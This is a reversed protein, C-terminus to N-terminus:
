DLKVLFYKTQVLNNTFEVKMLGENYISLRGTQIEKNAMLIERMNDFNFRMLDLCVTKDMKLEFSIKNSHNGSEGITFLINSNGTFSDTVEEISFEKCETFANKVKTFRGIFDETFDIVIDYDKPENVEPVQNIINPDSLPYFLEYNSDKLIFM